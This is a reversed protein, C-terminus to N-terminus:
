CVRIEEVVPPIVVVMLALQGLGPEVRGLYDLLNSRCFDEKQQSQKEVLAGGLIISCSLM